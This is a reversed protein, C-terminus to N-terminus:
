PYHGQRPGFYGGPADTTANLRIPGVYDVGYTNVDNGWWSISKDHYQVAFFIIVSSFAVGASLGGSLVYNYKSWWAFLNKRIYYMFFFSAIFSPTYYTLNYPSWNLMGGIILTPQFTQVLRNRKFMKQLFVVPFALLFGILFCWRLNPYIGSFIKKPGIVGWLVSSSYFTTSSPCTFKQPQHPHCYDKITEMALNVVGLSVFSFVITSIVQVRFTARPPIRLNHGIKLDGLFTQCQGDINYRLAKVLMLALGNNPIAYGVILEILVNLGFLFGTTAYIISLPILLIFNLALAFFLSWVPTEAPYCKVCLIGFVLSIVLIVIFWWEPTEKYKTMSRSFSDDFGDYTSSKEKNRFTKYLGVFAGKIQKWKMIMIHFFSFPYILFFAGYVVLSGASYFPPGYKEYADPDFLSNEDVVQTVEYYDGTNTFLSNSNIPLYATWKYNTYWFAATMVFAVLGGLFLNLQTYFPYILPNLFSIINWDFTSIPNLGLGSQSGTIVALNVNNPSIWTMWNFTSLATFLYDPVWYWLFSLATTLFLFNYRSIRWGNISEKKEPQMLASNLALTPLNTPWIASEPYVVFKRVLGALGFGMFNTFFMLLFQYGFDVWKNNYFIDMKQVQINSGVYATTSSINYCITALMQEKYTWPGPNLDIVYKGIKFSWHPFYECLKGCPYIFLQVVSSLLSISPQRDQFYTNIFTGLITWVLGVLYVRPTECPISPDDYPDTVSRVEPYPSWYAIIGAEVRLQLPPDVIVHHSPGLSMLSEEVEDSAVNYELKELSQELHKAVNDGSSTEIKYLKEIFEFEETPINVEGLHKALYDEIIARAEESSLSQIKEMMFVAGPPLDDLNDLHGYNLRKLIFFKQDSTFEEGVEGISLPQSTIAHLDLEHDAAERRDTNSTVSALNTLGAPKESM